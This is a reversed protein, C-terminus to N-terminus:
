IMVNKKSNDALEIKEIHSFDPDDNVLKLIIQM